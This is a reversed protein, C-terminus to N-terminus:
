CSVTLVRQTSDPKPQTELMQEAVQLVVGLREEIAAVPRAAM